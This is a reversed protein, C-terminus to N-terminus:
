KTSRAYRPDKPLTMTIRPSNSRGCGLNYLVNAKLYVSMMDSNALLKQAQKPNINKAVKVTLKEM